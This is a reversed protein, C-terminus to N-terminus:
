AVRYSRDLSGVYEARCVSGEEAFAVVVNIDCSCRHRTVSQDSDFARRYPGQGMGIQPWFAFTVLGSKSWQLIEYTSEARPGSGGSTM